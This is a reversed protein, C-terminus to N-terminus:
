TMLRYLEYFGHESSIIVSRKVEPSISIHDFMLLDQFIIVM